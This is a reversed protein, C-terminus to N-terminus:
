PSTTSHIRTLSERALDLDEYRQNFLAQVRREKLERILDGVCRVEKEFRTLGKGLESLYHADSGGVEALGLERALLRAALNEEPLNAGNIVELAHLHPLEKVKDRLSIMGRFPHAPIAIGDHKEADTILAIADPKQLDNLSALWKRDTSFFLIHGWRTAAEIGALVIVGHKKGLAEYDFDAIFKRHECFALGDILHTKKMQVIQEAYKEPEVPSDGSFFSHVHLNLVTGM